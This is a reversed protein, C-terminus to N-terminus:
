KKDFIRKWGPSDEITYKAIKTSAYKCFPQTQNVPEEVWLLTGQDREITITARSCQTESPEDRAVVEHTEWKVIPFALPIEMRGLQNAGIQQISAVRCENLDRFCGITYTNNPYALGDGTLTGSIAVWSDQQAQRSDSFVKEAFVIENSDFPQSSVPLLRIAGFMGAAGVLLGVVFLAWKM